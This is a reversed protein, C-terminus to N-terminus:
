GPGHQDILWAAMPKARRAAEVDGEAASVISGKILSDLSWALDKADRLGALEARTQLIARINDLHAICAQGIRGHPGVEFLVKIFSCAEYDSRRSFWDDLVDFTALLQGRPNEARERPRRDIIEATWSVEREELFALVLDDKSAFHRYLTAKAVGAKHVVEDIGVDCIGRRTFLKCATAIIRERPTPSDPVRM